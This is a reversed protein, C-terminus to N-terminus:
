GENSKITNLTPRPLGVSDFWALISDRMETWPIRSTLTPSNASIGSATIYAKVLSTAVTQWRLVGRNRDLLKVSYYVSELLHKLLEKDGAKTRALVSLFASRVNIKEPHEALWEDIRELRPVSLQELTINTILWEYLFSDLQWDLEEDLAKLLRSLMERHEPSNKGVARAFQPTRSSALSFDAVNIHEVVDLGAPFSRAKGDTASLFWLQLAAVWSERDPIVTRKRIAPVLEIAIDRAGGQSLSASLNALDRATANPTAGWEAVLRKAFHWEGPNSRGLAVALTGIDHSLRARISAPVVWDAVDFAPTPRVGWAERAIRAHAAGIMRGSRSRIRKGPSQVSFIHWGERMALHSLLYHYPADAVCNMLAERLIPEPCREYTRHFYCTILYARVPWPLSEPPAFDDIPQGDNLTAWIRTIIDAFPEGAAAEMALVLFEEETENLNGPDRGYLRALTQREQISASPLTFLQTKIQGRDVARGFREFLFDPSAGLIGIRMSHLALRQMFIDWGSESFFPDDLILLLPREDGALHKLNAIFPDFDEQTIRPLNVGPDAVTVAGEQILLAAVRRVLTSKGGGPAGLVFVTHLRSDTGREVPALIHERVRRVLEDTLDREVFRVEADEGHVVDAWEPPRAVFIQKPKASQEELYHRGVVRFLASEDDHVKVAFLAALLDSRNIVRPEKPFLAAPGDSTPDFQVINGHMVGRLTALTTAQHRVDIEGWSILMELARREAHLMPVGAANDTIPDGRLYLAETHNLLEEVLAEHGYADAESSWLARDSSGSIPKGLASSTAKRVSEIAAKGLDKLAVPGDSQFRRDSCVLRFRLSHRMGSPTWLWKPAFSVLVEALQAAQGIDEIRKCQTFITHSSADVEDLDEAWDYRLAVPIDELDLVPRRAYMSALRAVAYGAQYTFGGISVRGQRTASLASIKAQDILFKVPM